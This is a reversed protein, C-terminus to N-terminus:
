RAPELTRWRLPTARAIELVREVQFSVRRDTTGSTRARGSLQLSGGTEFDVFLLGARADVALNGLTNFMNNGPYDPFSLRTPGEVAVFGEPGGRHSADAGARPHATAIFFTDARAVQLRQREDLAASPIAAGPPDAEERVIARPRIYKPCNGYAEGVSLFLGREDLWGRGNVRFRRRTAPEIVLLGVEPRGAVNAALPDGPAPRAAVRLLTEDPAELFGAPGTLLSAWLRGDGDISGAIALRQGALFRRAAPFLTPAIGAGVARAEDSVGALRQVAEEGEHFPGTV